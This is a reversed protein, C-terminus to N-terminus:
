FTASVHFHSYSDDLEVFFNTINEEGAAMHAILRSIFEKSHIRQDLHMLFGVRLQAQRAWDQV